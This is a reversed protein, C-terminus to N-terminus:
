QDDSDFGDDQSEYARLFHAAEGRILVCDCPVIDPALKQDVPTDPGTKVTVLEILDGPVLDSTSKEVWQRGRFVMIGYSKTGMSNLMKMTKLRQFVSTSEM